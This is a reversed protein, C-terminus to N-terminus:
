YLSPECSYCVYINDKDFKVKLNYLIVAEHMEALTIMDDVVLLSAETINQTVNEVVIMEQSDALAFCKFLCVQGGTIDKCWLCQNEELGM